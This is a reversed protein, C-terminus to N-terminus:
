HLFDDIDKGLVCQFLKFNNALCWLIDHVCLLPQFVVSVEYDSDSVICKFPVSLQFYLFFRIFKPDVRKKGVAVARLGRRRTQGREDRQQDDKQRNGNIGGSKAWIM